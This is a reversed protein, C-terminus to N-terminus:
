ISMLVKNLFLQRYLSAGVEGWCGYTIYSINYKSTLIYCNCSNMCTLPHAPCTDIILAVNRKQFDMEKAFERVFKLKLGSM